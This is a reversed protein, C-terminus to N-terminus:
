LVGGSVVHVHTGKLGNMWLCMHFAHICVCVCRGGGGEGVMWGGGIGVGGGEGGVWGGETHMSVRSSEEVEQGTMQVMEMLQDINTSDTIFGIKM